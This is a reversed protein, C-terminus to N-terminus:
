GGMMGGMGGGGMMGGGRGAAIGDSTEPVTPGTGTVWDDFVLTVERDYKLPEGAAPEVIFPAALGLDLQRQEDVHTHYLRTGAPRAEFEYDFTAGPQVAKQTIEPVGDMPNPVDLGHWHITTPESLANRLVIRLREGERARIEPGPVQGNYAMAKVRKGPALEWSVERAELQITRVPSATAASNRLALGSGITIAGLGGVMELFSRRSIM